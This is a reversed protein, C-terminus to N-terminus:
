TLGRDLVMEANCSQTTEAAPLSACGDVGLITAAAFGAMAERRTLDFGM